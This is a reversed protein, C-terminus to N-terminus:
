RQPPGYNVKILRLAFDEADKVEVMAILGDSGFVMNKDRPDVTLGFSEEQIQTECLFKGEPSYARILIPCDSLCETKTFVLLNGEADVLVERYLPLHDAFIHDISAEEVQKLQEKFLGQAYRPDKRMGAVLAEKYRGRYDKTVPIPELGLDISSLKVGAPSYVDLSTELSNGVLLNGDKTAAIFTGGTTGGSFSMSGGTRLMVGGWNFTYQAVRTERPGDIGRIVVSRVIKMSTPGEGMYSMSIYAIKGERLAVPYYAPRQTTVIQKFNGDLDFLSIRRNTAYEGVVLYKGDLVSLNDPYKFDGPGQGEQGFTKVLNGQPDFKFIKHQRSGAVFISGDPAVALDCFLDYFLLNWDTTKGFSPDPLLRVPGTKYVEAAPSQGSPSDLSFAPPFSVLCLVVIPLVAKKIM